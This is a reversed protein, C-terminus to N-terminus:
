RRLQAETIGMTEGHAVRTLQFTFWTEGSAVEYVSTYETVGGSSNMSWSTRKLQFSDTGGGARWTACMKEFEREFEDRRLADPYTLAYARDTDQDVIAQLMEEAMATTEKDVKNMLTFVLFVLAAVLAALVTLSGVVILAIRLPRAKKPPPAAWQGYRFTGTGSMSPGAGQQFQSRGYKLADMERQMEELRREMEQIKQDKEDM